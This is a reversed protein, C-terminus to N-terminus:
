IRGATNLLSQTAQFDMSLSDVAYTSVSNFQSVFPGPLAGIPTAYIPFQPTAPNSCIFPFRDIKGGPLVAPALAIMAIPCICVTVNGTSGTTVTYQQRKTMMAM